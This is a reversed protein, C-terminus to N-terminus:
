RVCFISLLIDYRYPIGDSLLPSPADGHHVMGDYWLVSGGRHGLGGRGRCVLRIFQYYNGEGKASLITPIAMTKRLDHEEVILGTKNSADGEGLKPLYYKASILYHEISFIAVIM